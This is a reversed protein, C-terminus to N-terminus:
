SKRWTGRACARTIMRRAKTELADRNDARLVITRRKRLVYPMDLRGEPNANPAPEFSYGHARLEDYLGPRPVLQCASPHLHQSIAHIHVVGPHSEVIAHGDYAAPIAVARNVMLVVEADPSVWRLLEILERNKM